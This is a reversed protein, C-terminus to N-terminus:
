PEIEHDLWDYKKTSILEGDEGYQYRFSVTGEETEYWKEYVVRNFADYERYVMSYGKLCRILEGNADYYKERNINGMKDYTYEVMCYTDEYESGARTSPEGNEDFWRENIVKDNNLSQIRTAFGLEGTVIKGTFDYYSEKRTDKEETPDERLEPAPTDTPAPTPAM